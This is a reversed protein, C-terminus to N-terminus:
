ALKIARTAIFPDIYADLPESGGSNDEYFGAIVFGAEIQGQIQDHLSHGFCLAENKAYILEQRESDSLDRLDSYPIKHRVVLQGENWAKLDFIYLIPNAFGSLLSGGPKLVRYAERWVPLVSDVFGNSAPHFVLDFSEDAFVSLDRMDGQELRIALGEREAVLRDQGLQAPSNDFVTVQAGAAALVPGQQGGGSALCLVQKGTLDSPFWSRPVPKTPTLVIKWDGRRAAEIVEHSVPRTWVNGKQVEEDWSQRNYNIYDM